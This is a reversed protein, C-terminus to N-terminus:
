LECQGGACAVERSNETSDVKEYSVIKSFDIHGIKEELDEFREKTIEEYPSLSYVHNSRPLFSIGGVIDWNKYVWNAVELWEDEGVYVTVSPNHETFNEKLMKWYELQEIASINDKYVANDPSKVPFEVVWTTATERSQGVEPFYPVGQDKLLLFLPDHDAIRVRRIYYPAYRPHLGSSSHVTQSLNGSPKVCTVCTSSGIGFREAYQKNMKVAHKRLKAMTDPTRVAECDWQGTISVGLLREEECNKKWDKSLYPFNVLTSQYTGLLAAIKIKKLLTEETDKERAVVESLNCFQKPQLLIEGCPNTGLTDVKEKLVKLRRAPLTQRLGGRNFLGREGTSSKILALWEDMFQEINPKEEYVASNNAMSREPHTNWFQGV